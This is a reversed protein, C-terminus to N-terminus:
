CTVHILGAVKKKQEVLENLKVIADYLPQVLLCVNNSRVWGFNLESIKAV